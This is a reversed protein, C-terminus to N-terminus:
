KKIKFHYCISDAKDAPLDMIEDNLIMFQRAFDTRRSKGIQQYSTIIQVFVTDTKKVDNLQQSCWRYIGKKLFDNNKNTYPSKQYLFSGQRYFLFSMDFYIKEIMADNLMNLQFYCTISLDNTRIIPGKLPTGPALLLIPKADKNSLVSNNAKITDTKIKVIPFPVLDAAPKKVEGFIWQTVVGITILLASLYPRLKQWRTPKENTSKQLQSLNIAGAIFVSWYFYNM